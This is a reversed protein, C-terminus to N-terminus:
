KFWFKAVPVTNGDLLGLRFEYCKNALSKATKWTYTYQQNAASYQLGGNSAAYTEIADLAAGPSPCAIPVAKPYPTAPSGDAPRFINLGRDGGLGFKIPIAQGAKATNWVTSGMDVPQFFGSFPWIVTFSQTVPTAAAYSANGAQSATISCTGIGALTLTAGSVTCTAAPSALYSVPLGSSATATLAFPASGLTKQPLPGFTITQAAQVAAITYPKLDAADSEYADDVLTIQTASPLLAITGNFYANVNYSGGPLSLAGLPAKGTFDTIVTRSLANAPVTPSSVVFFVSRQGLANGSTDTLTAVIGSDAGPAGSSPGTVTLSTGAKTVGFTRTAASPANDADGLYAATLTYDGPIATVDVTAEAHGTADTLVTRYLSGISFQIPQDVLPTAGTLTAGVTVEDGFVVSTPGADLTTTTTAPTATSAPQDISFFASRNDDRGVLGVGSVAQIMFRIDSASSGSPIALSGTWHGPDSADEELDLSLWCKPAPSAPCQSDFGTYTIWVGQIGATPDASVRADFQIQGGGDVATVDIISPASTLAAATLNNSYFLQVDVTRFKRLTTTNVTPGESRHQAPTVLLRTQGGGFADFYNPTAIVAPYFTQSGFGVHPTNVETAVAGSLPVIGPIDTYAGGRFGVGRLSTGTVSANEAFRPLAPQDPKGVVGDPGSLWTAILDPQGVEKLTKTNTAVDTTDISVEDTALGLGTGPGAEVLTPSAISPAGGSTGRGSLLDVSLMPLGFITSQLLAKTDISELTPNNALYAIKARLLADGVSVPGTGARLERAFGAYIAESYQVLDTDGYQYGTGAILTAQERAFAQAWDLPDTVNPIWDADVLNYGSHCGQSFVITNRFFGDPTSALESADLETTYDAALASNASFHGALFVLDNRTGFLKSRLADADWSQPDSPLINNPAILSDKVASPSLGDTFERQVQEAADAMFDYGMVLSRTPTPVVGNTTHDLYADIVLIAESATEVLRGVALDPVPFASVGLSLQRGAGYADQSLVYNLRLSAESATLPGVPPIYGSEPALDMTDPYRFFPITDDGGVLVVYSLDPNAPTRYSDVIEKLALAVLNKAYPCNYKDTAQENLLAIREYGPATVDVVVGDTEAELSALRAALTAKEGATGVIRGPDTLIVTRIGTDTPMPFASGSYSNLVGCADGSQTVGLTFPVGDVAAGNRGNVRIYFYGDNTWTNSTISEPALGANQSFDLLSRAQAGV